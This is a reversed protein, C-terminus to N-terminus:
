AGSLRELVNKIKTEFKTELYEAKQANQANETYACIRERYECYIFLTMGRKETYSCIWEAYERYIFSKVNNQMNEM